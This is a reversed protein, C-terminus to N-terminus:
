HSCILEKILDFFNYALFTLALLPYALGVVYSAACNDAFHRIICLSFSLLVRLSSVPMSFDHATRNLGHAFFAGPVM